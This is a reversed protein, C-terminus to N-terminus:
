HLMTLLQGAPTKTTVTCVSSCSCFCHLGFECLLRVQGLMLLHNVVTTKGVGNRSVLLQAPATGDLTYLPLLHQALHADEEPSLDSSNPM